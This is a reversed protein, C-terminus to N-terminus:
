HVPSGGSRFLLSAFCRHLYVNVQWFSAIWKSDFVNKCRIKLRRKHMAALTFEEVPM